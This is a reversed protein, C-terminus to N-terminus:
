YVMRLSKMVIRLLQVHQKLLMTSRVRFLILTLEVILAIHRERTHMAEGTIRTDILFHLQTKDHRIVNKVGFLVVFKAHRGSSVRMQVMTLFDKCGGPCLSCEIM